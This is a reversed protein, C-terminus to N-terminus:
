WNLLGVDQRKEKGTMNELDRVDEEPSEGVPGFPMTWAYSGDGAARLAM